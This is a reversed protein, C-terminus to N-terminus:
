HGNLSAYMLETKGFNDIANLEIKPDRLKQCFIWFYKFHLIQNKKTKANEVM